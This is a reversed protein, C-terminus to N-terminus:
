DNQLYLNYPHPPDFVPDGEPEWGGDPFNKLVM